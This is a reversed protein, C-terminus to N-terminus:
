FYIDDLWNTTSNGNKTQRKWSGNRNQIFTTEQKNNIASKVEKLGAVIEKNSMQGGGNQKQLLLAMNAPSMGLSSSMAVLAKTEEHPIVQTGKPLWTLTERNPTFSLKGDPTIVAEVGREGVKALGDTPKSDVGDAYAPTGAALAYQAAGFFGTAIALPYNPLAEVVGSITDIFIKALAMRKEREAQERREKEKKAEFNARANEQSIQLAKIKEAKEKESLTSAQINNIESAYKADQRQQEADYDKIRQQSQTAQLSMLMGFTRQAGQEIAKNVREREKIEEDATQKALKVRNEHDKQIRAVEDDMLKQIDSSLSKRSEAVFDNTEKTLDKRQLEYKLTVTNLEEELAGKKKMAEIETKEDLKLLENKAHIYHLFALYRLDTSNEENQYILQQTKVEDELRLKNQEAAALRIRENAALTENTPDFPKPGKKNKERERKKREEETLLANAKEKAKNAEYQKRTEEDLFFLANDGLEKEAQLQNQLSEIELQRLRVAAKAEEIQDPTALVFTNPDKGLMRDLELQAQAQDSAAKTIKGLLLTEKARRLISKTVEDYTTKVEGNLIKERDINGFYEPYKQQLEDVAKGRERYSLNTNTATRNLTNLEAVEKGISEALERQSENLKKTAEDVEKTGSFWEILKPTLITIAAVALSIIGNWSILSRGMTQLIQNTSMGTAKLQDFKDKLPSINNSIGMLGTQVGNAFAPLDRLIYQVEILGSAYNGVNRTHQGVSADLRKLQDGLANADATAQIAIPHHEGLIIQYNKAKRAMETYAISLQKYEDMLDKNIKEERLAAKEEAAIKKQLEAEQKKLDRELNDQIKQRQAEKRKEADEYKKRRQERKKELRDEERDEDRKQSLRRNHRQTEQKERETEAKAAKLNADEVDKMYKRHAETYSKMLKEMKAFDAGKLDGFISFGKKNMDAVIDAIDKLQRKVADVEQEWDEHFIYLPENNM